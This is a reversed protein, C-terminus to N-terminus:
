PGSKRRMWVSIALSTIPRHSRGLSSGFVAISGLRVNSQVLCAREEIDSLQHLALLVVEGGLVDGSGQGNEGSNGCRISSAARREPGPRAALIM